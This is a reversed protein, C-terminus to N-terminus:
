KKRGGDIYIVEMRDLRNVVLVIDDIKPAQERVIYISFLYPLFEQLVVWFVELPNM